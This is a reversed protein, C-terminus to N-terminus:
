TPAIPWFRGKLVGYASIAEGVIVHCSQGHMKASGTPADDFQVKHITSRMSRVPRLVGVGFAGNLKATLCWSIYLVHIATNVHQHFPMKFPFM